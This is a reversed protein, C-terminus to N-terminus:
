WLLNLFYYYFLHRLYVNYLFIFLAFLAVIESNVEIKFEEVFLQNFSFDETKFNKALTGLM